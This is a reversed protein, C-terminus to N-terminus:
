CGMAFWRCGYNFTTTPTYMFFTFGTAMINELFINENSYATTPIISILPISEFAKTFTVKHYRWGGTGYGSCEGTEVRPIGNDAVLTGIHASSAIINNTNVGNIGFYVEKYNGWMDIGSISIAKAPNNSDIATTVTTKKAIACTSFDLKGLMYNQVRVMDVLDIINDNNFDYLKKDLSGATGNLLANKITNLETQTPPIYTELVSKLKTSTISWGGFTGLVATVAGTASVKFGKSDWTGTALNLLMGTSGVAYNTSKIIGATVTGLNASIASLSSVNLEAATIANAAIQTSTITKAAIKAGTVAGAVIKDSTVADAAIKSATVAGASLKDATIASAAITSATVANAAIKGATVSNAALKDSSVAGALIKATTVANVAIKDATVANAAIQTSTVTSAYIKGGNIYMIDNNYCWEASAALQTATVYGAPLESVQTTHWSIVTSKMYDAKEFEVVSLNDYSEAKAVYLNWTSVATKVIYFRSSGSKKLSALGPDTGSANAFNIWVTSPVNGRNMVSIKIPSNQYSGGIKITALHFYGVIGAQGSTSHYIKRAAGDALLYASDAKSQASAANSVATNAIGQALGADKLAKAVDEETATIKGGLSSSLKDMDIAGSAIQQGNIKGVTINAAKLNIVEIEAADIRGSTIKNATLGVIKADTISGDAIQATGIAGTEIMATKITGAAINTLDIKAY